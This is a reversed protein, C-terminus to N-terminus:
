RKEKATRVISYIKKLAETKFRNIGSLNEKSDIDRVKESFEGIVKRIEDKFKSKEDANLNKLSSIEEIKKFSANQLSEVFRYNKNNHSINAIPRSIEHRNEVEVKERVVKNKTEESNNREKAKRVIGYINRLAEAKFRNIGSLNERSDIDRVKESFEGIVKRIEDKFKSKEDANLNKLSSIEEIKKFSNDQLSEVFRYNQHIGGGLEKAGVNQPTIVFGLVSSSILVNAVLVKLNLIKM